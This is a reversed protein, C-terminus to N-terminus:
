FGVLFTSWLLMACHWLLMACHWLLMAADLWATSWLLMAAYCCLLMAAYCCLVSNVEM